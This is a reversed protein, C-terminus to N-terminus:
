NSPAYVKICPVILLVHTQKWSVHFEVDRMIAVFVNRVVNYLTTKEVGYTCCLLHIGMPDLSQSYISHSVGLVLPHSFSIHLTISFVNSMLCFFPHNPPNVVSCRCRAGCIVKFANLTFWLTFWFSTLLLNAM